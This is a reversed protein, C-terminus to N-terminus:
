AVGEALEPQYAGPTVKRATDNKNSAKSELANIFANGLVGTGSSETRGRAFIVQVQPCNAATASAAAGPAGPPLVVATLTPAAAIVVPALGVDVWKRVLLVRV